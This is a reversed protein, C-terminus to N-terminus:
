NPVITELNEVKSKKSIRALEAIYVGTLMAFGGLIQILNLSEGLVIWAILFAVLPEFMGMLSAGAAGLHKIAMVVLVFPVVTGGIVMYTILWLLPTSAESNVFPQVNVYLSEWPFNQWPLTIAWFITAILFGWMILSVSDRNQSAKEGFLFYIVLSFTAGFAFFFGVKDLMFGQWVQAVLALGGIALALGLWITSRVKQKRVFRVWLVIYIPATFEILLTIGVPMRSIAEFYAWQTLTIGLLAYVLLVPIESKKLRFAKRNTLAVVTILIIFASTTRLQSVRAADGISLLIIKSITGNLGWLTAAILYLIYGTAAHKVASSSL